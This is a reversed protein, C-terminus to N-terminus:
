NTLSDCIIVDTPLETIQLKQTNTLCDLCQQQVVVTWGYESNGSYCYHQPYAWTTTGNDNPLGLCLNIQGILEDAELQTNYKLINM